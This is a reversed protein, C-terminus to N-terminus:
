PARENSVKYDLRAMRSAQRADRNNVFTLQRMARRERRTMATVREM